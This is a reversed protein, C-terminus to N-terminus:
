RAKIVVYDIIGRRSVDRMKLLSRSLINELFSPYKKLIRERIIGRNSIYYDTLPEYVNHGIHRIEQVDFGNEEIASKVYGLEYHESSWTWSLIGLKFFSLSHAMVPIAIVLLGGPELVRRSEKIFRDLPRFHQASELAIIRDASRDSFPLVTSTANLLSVKNAQRAGLLQQFNINVCSIDLTGYASKWQAAPAALGSGVDILRKATGLEAMKGVLSCLNNQAVVPDSANGNWYGFNLMNGGTALHMVPSLSNYLNIVDHENRRFTWLVVQLPNILAM